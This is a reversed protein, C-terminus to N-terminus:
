SVIQECKRRWLALHFKGRDSHFVAILLQITPIKKSNQYSICSKLRTKKKKRLEFKQRASGYFCTSFAKASSSKTTHLFIFKGACWRNRGELGAWFVAFSQHHTPNWFLFWVLFFFSRLLSSSTTTSVRSFTSGFSPTFSFTTSTEFSALSSTFTGPYGSTQGGTPRYSITAM